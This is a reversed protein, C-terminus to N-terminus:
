SIYELRPLKKESSVVEKNLMLYHALKLYVNKEMLKCDYQCQM